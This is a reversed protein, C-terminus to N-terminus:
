RPYEAGLCSRDLRSRLESALVIDDEVIAVVQDLVVTEASAFTSTMVLLPALLWHRWNFKNSM